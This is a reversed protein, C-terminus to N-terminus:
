SYGHMSRNGYIPASLWVMQNVGSELMFDEQRHQAPLRRQQLM